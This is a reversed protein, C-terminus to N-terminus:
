ASRSVSAYTICTCFTAIGCCLPSAQVIAFTTGLGIAVVRGIAQMLLMKNRPWCFRHKSLLASLGDDTLEAVSCCFHQRGCKRQQGQTVIHRSTQYLAVKLAVACVLGVAGSFGLNQLIPWALDTLRTTYRNLEPDDDWVNSRQRRSRNRKPSAYAELAQCSLLLCIIPVRAGSWGGGTRERIFGTEGHKFCALMRFTISNSCPVWLGDSNWRDFYDGVGGSGGRGGGDPQIHLSSNSENVTARPTVIDFRVSLCRDRFPQRWPTPPNIFHVRDARALIGVKAQASHM